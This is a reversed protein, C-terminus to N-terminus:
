SVASERVPLYLYNQFVMIPIEPHSHPIVADEYHGGSTGSKGPRMEGKRWFAHNSNGCDIFTSPNKKSRRVPQENPVVILPSLEVARIPETSGNIGDELIPLV